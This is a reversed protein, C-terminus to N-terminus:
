IEDPAPDQNYLTMAQEPRNKLLYLVAEGAKELMKNKIEAEDDTFRGLVFEMPDIGEPVPGTGMRLRLIEETELHEIISEMGNHSGASGRTRIRIKGLPLDFDDYTILIDAPTLNYGVMTQVVAIGCRNMYTTPWVFRVLRGDIEKEGVYFDGPGNKQMFKWKLSLMDLLDFGLNHRTEAHRIGVNGLGIVLSIM